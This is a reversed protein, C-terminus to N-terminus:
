KKLPKIIFNFTYKGTPVMYEELPLLGWSNECGLGMQKLDFCLHTKGDKEIEPFHRRYDHHMCDLQETSYPLASASFLTDAGIEIGLGEANRVRLWRLGCHSGSEQPRAYFEDAQESVKQTYEAVLAGSMRDCYTEHPGAGYFEVTDFRGDLATTMGYRMMSKASVNRSPRMQESVKVTGDAGIRYTITMWASILPISYRTEVTVTGEADETMNFFTPSLKAMRWMMWSYFADRHRSSKLAGLQNETPGQYFNPKLPEALLKVGCLTYDCLFGDDGFSVSFDKGSVTRDCLTLGGGALTLAAYQAAMDGARLTFQEHAAEHGAALLMDDEKLLYRLTLMLEGESLGELSYGLVIEESSQPAIGLNEVSGELVQVGDRTVSWALRYKSLPEFFNENYVSIRGINGDLLTSHINRHQHKVEWAGPHLSRNSAIIGNCCFTDDTADRGNYDGGYRYITKGSEPDKWALAQDVFDWIFGGQYHPYHRIMDWYEKFGGLSNGMAHAYECQILPRRIKLSDFGELYDRCNNYTAYMPCQIDSNTHQINHNSTAAQEYQVPRSSDYSKVWDYCKHFNEGNGSENGLSWIIISPHNYDRLVMRRNRALHAETFEKNHALSQKGYGMGHSEINAEDVVYLGYIDCLDYWLPANPYHCTRVANVNLQKMIQIDRIMEERTVVYGGEASMEHRNVGKILVPAGNVLLQADKIEVKRFGVNFAASEIESGGDSATVTLRYLNPAEASWKLPNAVEFLAKASGKTVTCERSAVATGDAATLTLRISKVGATATVNVDLVGDTYNNVLDPTIKVDAIRRRDRAYIYCGRSIGSLRFFDQDELYSGDCWRYIQMAFLNKGGAKVYRTIDFEAELKSDESYGVRKGNVWLTLNSTASGIHVFIDKGKWEAPVEVTRRYLGVHNQESPVHPPNNAFFKYWPYLSNTYVPDGYGCLEWNAPVAITGWASDDFEASHFGVPLTDDASETWHFRWLGDIPRYLPSAAPENVSPAGEATPAVIFSSRMAARNEEFLGADQWEPIQAPQAASVSAAIGCLLLGLTFITKRM